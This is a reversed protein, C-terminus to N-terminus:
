HPAREGTGGGACSNGERGARQRRQWSSEAAGRLLLRRMPKWNRELSGFPTSATATILPLSLLKRMGKAAEQEM